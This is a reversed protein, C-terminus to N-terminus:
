GELGRALRWQKVLAFPVSLMVIAVLASRVHLLLHLPRFPPSM